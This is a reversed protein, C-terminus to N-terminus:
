WAIEFANKKTDNKSVEVIKGSNMKIVTNAMLAINQNHTVM